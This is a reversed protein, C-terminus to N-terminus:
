KDEFTTRSFDEWHSIVSHDQGEASQYQHLRKSKDSKQENKFATNWLM